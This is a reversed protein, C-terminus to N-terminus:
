EKSFYYEYMMRIYFLSVAIFLMVCILFVLKQKRIDDPLHNLQFLTPQTYYLVIIILIYFLFLKSLEM